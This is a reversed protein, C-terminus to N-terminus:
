FNYFSDVRSAALMDISAFNFWLTFFCIDAQDKKRFNKKIGFISSVTKDEFFM